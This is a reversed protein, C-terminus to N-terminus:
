FYGYLYQCMLSDNFYLSKVSVSMVKYFTKGAYGASYSISDAYSVRASVTYDARPTVIARTWNNFDDVDDFLPYTEGSEPGLSGAATFGAPLDTPIGGTSAEDFSKAGAEEIFSQALELATAKFEAVMIRETNELKSENLYVSSVTFIVLAGLVLMTEGLNM